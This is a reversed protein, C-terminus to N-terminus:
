VIVAQPVFGLTSLQASAFTKAGIMLSEEDITYLIALNNPLNPQRMAELMAWMMAAGTGKTDCTGRGWIKGDRVQSGLPDITMGDLAVTDLHSVFLLWPRQDNGAVSRAPMVLLNNGGHNGVLPVPLRRATLNW